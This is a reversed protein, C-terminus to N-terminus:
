LRKEFNGMVSIGDDRIVFAVPDISYIIEMFTDIEYKSIVTILINTEERTYAGLGSWRTVGRATQEMIRSDMGSKKTFIMLRVNINQYHTRDM